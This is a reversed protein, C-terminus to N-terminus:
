ETKAVRDLAEKLKIEADVAKNYYEQGDDEAKEMAKKETELQAELLKIRESLQHNRVSPAKLEGHLIAM